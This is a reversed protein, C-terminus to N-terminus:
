EVYFLNLYIEGATAGAGTLTPVYAVVPDTTINNLNQYYTPSLPYSIGTAFVNQSVYFNYGGIRINITAASVTGGSVAVTTILSAGVVQWSKSLYGIPYVTSTLFPDGAAIDIKWSKCKLSKGPPTIPTQPTNRVYNFSM